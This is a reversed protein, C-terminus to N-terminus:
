IRLLGKCFEMNYVGLAPNQVNEFEKSLTGM